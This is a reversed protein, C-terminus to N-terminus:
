QFSYTGVSRKQEVRIGYKKIKNLLATHSVSLSLAAQRISGTDRLARTIVDTEFRATLHRLGGQPDPPEAGSLPPQNAEHSFLINAHEVVQGNGLIAGREMVNKLERVNGPWHHGMLKDMAAESITQRPNNLKETLLDLFHPALRRIDERRERLPPIHVPVVNIRYYLDERFLRRQVMAELNKNTATIIRTDVPIERTGGIRRVLGEQLVRLIKAQPGAPMEGIEDLFLTGGSAVEFLGPKGKKRAGTFAGDAYGFLESELLPEPMAACNIAIFPGTRDSEFHIAGAFLEKGTGSEGRVSVTADTPAIRRALLIANKIGNSNGLICNFSATTPSAVERAMKQVEKLDKMLVVTGVSRGGADHIPRASAYFEVRGDSTVVSERRSLPRKQAMCDLLINGEPKIDRINKGLLQRAEYGLIRCAVPNITTVLGRENTAIIGESVGDFVAQHHKERRERPLTRVLRVSLAGPLGHFATVLAAPAPHNGKPRTLEMYVIAAEGDQIVEMSLINLGKDTVERTLDAVVGIRDSFKLELKLSEASHTM